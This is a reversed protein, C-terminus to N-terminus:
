GALVSVLDGAPFAAPSRAASGWGFGHVVSRTVGAGEDPAFVAIVGVVLGGLIFLREVISRPNPCSTPAACACLERLEAVWAENRKRACFHCASRQRLSCQRFRRPEPTRVAPAATTSRSRPSRM